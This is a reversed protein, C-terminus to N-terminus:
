HQQFRAGLGTFVRYLMGGMIVLNKQFRIMQTGVQEKHFMPTPPDSVRQTNYAQEVAIPAELM